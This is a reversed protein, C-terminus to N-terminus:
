NLQYNILVQRFTKLIDPIYLTLPTVPLNLKSLTASAKEESLEKVHKWILGREGNKNDLIAFIWHYM